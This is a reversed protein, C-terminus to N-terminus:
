CAGFHAVVATIDDSGGRRLAQAALREVAQAASSASVIAAIDDDGLYKSVGDSCVLVADGRCLEVRRVDARHEGHGGGGLANSLVHHYPSDPDARVGAEALQAALTHDRTLQEARGARVRYCRSDGAHALYLRPWSVLAAPLTTGM